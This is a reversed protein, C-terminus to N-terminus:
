DALFQLCNVEANLLASSRSSGLDQLAAQCLVRPLNRGQDRQLWSRLRLQEAESVHSFCLGARGSCDCWVVEALVTLEAGAVDARAEPLPLVFSLTQGLKLSGDNPDGHRRREYEAGTWLRRGFDTRLAVPEDRHSSRRSGHKNEFWTNKLGNRSDYPSLLCTAKWVSADLAFWRACDGIDKRVPNRASAIAPFNAQIPLLHAIEEVRFSIEVYSSFKEFKM